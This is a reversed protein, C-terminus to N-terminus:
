DGKPVLLGLGFHSLAGIAIPGRVEGVFEVRVIAANRADELREKIRHRRFALAEGRLVDVSRPEPFGRHALETRIEKEVFEPWAEKKKRHRPPAFPTISKWTRSPGAVEPGAQDISGFVELGLRCPRFERIFEYGKLKRLASLAQLAEPGLGEPAWLLLHDILGDGDEDLALYHAHGHGTLPEGQPNKGALIPSASGDHIGGFRSMCANRLADCMVVASRLSPRASTIVAWRVATPEEYSRRRAPRPCVDPEEPVTYQVWEAGPPSRLRRSRLDLTEVALADLDVPRTPVLLRVSTGGDPEDTAPSAVEGAPEEHSRLLRGECISDARGVYPVLAALRKLVSRLEEELDVDWEVFVEGDRQFVVFPDFAKDTNGDFGLRHSSDPMYHRSHAGVAPPLRYVPPSALADALRQMQEGGVDPARTKWTSYLARLLRWCSPPWEVVSENLHRGWPTAHYRGWPFRLALATAM